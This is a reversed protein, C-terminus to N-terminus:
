SMNSTKPPKNHHRKKLVFHTILGAGIAFSVLVAAIYIVPNHQSPETSTQDYWPLITQAWIPLQLSVVGNFPATLPYDDSLSSNAIPIYNRDRTDLLYALDGLGDGNADFGQYDSWFNGCGAYSFYNTGTGNWLRITTNGLFNNNYFTNNESQIVPSGYLVNNYSTGLSVAYPANTPTYMTGSQSTKNYGTVTNACFINGNGQINLWGLDNNILTNNSGNVFIGGNFVNKAVLSGNGELWLGGGAPSFVNNGIVVSFSGVKINGQMYDSYSTVGYGVTNDAVINFCGYFCEIESGVRNRVVTNNSGGLIVAYVCNNGTVTINSGSMDLRCAITNNIIQARSGSGSISDCGIYNGIFQTDDGQVVIGGGQEAKITLNSFTAGHATINLIDSWFPLFLGNIHAAIMGPSQVERMSLISHFILVTGNPNEGVLNIAKTLTFPQENYTGNKIFVTDGSSASAIASSVTPFNITPVTLVRHSCPETGACFVASNPSLFIITFLLLMVVAAKLFIKQPKSM